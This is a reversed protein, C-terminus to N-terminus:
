EVRHIKLGKHRGIEGRPCSYIEHNNISININWCTNYTFKKIRLKLLGKHRNIQGYSGLLKWITRIPRNICYKDKSNM